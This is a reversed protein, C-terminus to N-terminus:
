VHIIKADPPPFMRTIPSSSAGTVEIDTPLVQFPTPSTGFAAGSSDALAVTRSSVTVTMPINIPVVTGYDRIMADSYVVPLPFQPVSATSLFASVATGTVSEALPLFQNPDHVRVLFRVGKQLSLPVVSAASAGITVTVPSGLQCPDLYLSQPLTHVCLAYQGAPASIAYVGSSGTVSLYISPKEGATGSQLVAVVSAQALPAGTDAATVTGTLGQAALAASSSLALVFIAPISASTKM